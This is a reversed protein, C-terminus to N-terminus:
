KVAAELPEAVVIVPVGDTLEPEATPWVRVIM